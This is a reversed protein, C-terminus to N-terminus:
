YSLVFVFVFASSEGRGQENKIKLWDRESDYRDEEAEEEEEMRNYRSEYYEPDYDRAYDMQTEYM